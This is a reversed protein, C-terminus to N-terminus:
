VEDVEILYYVTGYPAMFTDCLENYDLGYKAAVEQNVREHIPALWATRAKTYTEWLKRHQEKFARRAEHEYATKPTVMPKEPKMPIEPGQYPNALEETRIRETREQIAKSMAEDRAIFEEMKAELKTKDHSALIADSEEYRSSCLLWIKGM